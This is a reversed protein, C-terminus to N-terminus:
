LDIIYASIACQISFLEDYNEDYNEKYNSCVATTNLNKKSLRSLFLSDSKITCCLLVDVSRQYKQKTEINLNLKLIRITQQFSKWHFWQALGLTM